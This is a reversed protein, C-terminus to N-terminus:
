VEGLDQFIPRSIQCYICIEYDDDESWFHHICTPFKAGKGFGSVQAGCDICTGGDNDEFTRRHECM